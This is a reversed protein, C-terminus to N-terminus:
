NRVLVSLGKMETFYFHQWSIERFALEVGSPEPRKAPDVADDSMIVSRQAMYPLFSALEKRVTELGHDSDLFLMDITEGGWEPSTSDKVRLEWQAPYHKEQILQVTATKPRIYAVSMYNEYTVLKRETPNPLQSLASLLTCTSGGSDLGTEVIMHADLLIPTMYIFYDYPPFQASGEILPFM